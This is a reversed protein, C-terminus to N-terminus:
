GAWRDGLMLELTKDRESYSAGLLPYNYEQAQAGIELDDVELITRRGSNRRTFENLMRGWALRATFAGEADLDRAPAAMAPLPDRPVALLTCTAGRLLQTTVSGLMTRAVFGRGHTGTAILDAGTKSAYDLVEAAPRGRLTVCKVSVGAPVVLKSVLSALQAESWREYPEQADLTFADELVLPMVHVLSVEGNDAVAEIATQAARASIDSFDIAVVVRRPAVLTQEPVALVPVRAIRALQLATEDSFLRQAVLHRGLGVVVLAVRPTM